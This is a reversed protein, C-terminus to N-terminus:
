YVAHTKLYEYWINCYESNLHYGDPSASTPLYGNEDAVAEAVNLFIVGQEDALARLYSNFMYIKANTINGRAAEFGATVPMVSQIYIKANPNAAKVDAVISRYYSIFTDPSMWGVENVGFMIYAKSFPIQTIATMVPLKAGNVNVAPTTYATSVNLGTYALNYGPVGTYILLGETRSNGIFAADSFYSADVANYGMPSSSVEAPNIPVVVPNAATYTYSPPPSIINVKLAEDMVEDSIYKGASEETDETPGEPLTGDSPPFCLMETTLETKGETVDDEGYINTDTSSDSSDINSATVREPLNQKYARETFYIAGASVLALSFFTGLSAILIPHKKVKKRM